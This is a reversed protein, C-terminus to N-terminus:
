KIFHFIIATAFGAIGVLYGGLASAGSKQGSSTSLALQIADIKEALQRILLEAETRPMLTRQQDALTDRFENVSEFRKEAALEAKTVARDAAAQATDVALKQATLATQMATQQAILATNIASQSAEFRQGYRIDNADILTLIYERLTEVTWDSKEETMIRVVM